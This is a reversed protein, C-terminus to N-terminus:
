GEQQALIALYILWAGTLARSFPQLIPYSWTIWQSMSGGFYGDLMIIFTLPVALLFLFGLVKEFRGGAFLGIGYSLTGILFTTLIVFFTGNWVGSFTHLSSQILLQEESNAAAYSARWAENVAWINISVGLAEAACWILFAVFGISAAVPARRSLVAAVALYAGLALFVHVYNVWLRAMYGPESHLAITGDFGPAVAYTQPLYWLLFTTVASAIGAVGGALLGDIPISLPLASKM